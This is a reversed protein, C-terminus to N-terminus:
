EETTSDREEYVNLWVGAKKTNGAKHFAQFFNMSIPRHASENQLQQEWLALYIAPIRGTDHHEMFTIYNSPKYSNVGLAECTKSPSIVLSANRKIL